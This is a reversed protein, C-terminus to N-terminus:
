RNGEFDNYLSAKLHRKSHIRQENSDFECFDENTLDIEPRSLSHRSLVARVIKKLQM